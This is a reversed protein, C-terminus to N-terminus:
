KSTDRFLFADSDISGREIALQKGDKSYAYRFILDKTYSTLQKRDKGEITQQWLNDVGKERAVYVISKGDPAFVPSSTMRQDAEEERPKGGGTPDYRIMLKHDAERIDISAIWKGDPSVDFLNIPENIVTEPKGGEIAVRQLVQNDTQNTYYVWKGDHTCLPERDNQGFTLQTVNSGNADMRWLNVAASGTRNVRRFVIYRGDGCASTQDSIHTTDNLLMTEQGAPTVFKIQGAQPVVLTGNAGWGWRWLDEHSNLPVPKLQSPANAPAIGLEFTLKTQSAVLTKGDAALSPNRYNNTDHTLLRYDGGPYRMYGLQAQTSGTSLDMSPIILGQGDPMWVPEYFIRTPTVAFNSMKGTAADVALFGGLADKTPQVIPILITKGDPSWAPTLSDSLLNQDKLIQREGSGDSKMEILDWYPSDHKERLFAFRQGDPSFTIPTDVDRAVVHPTGGLVPSAYVIGIVHEEEDRRLFYL